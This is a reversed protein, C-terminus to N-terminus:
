EVDSSVLMGRTRNPLNMSGSMLSCGQWTPSILASPTLSSELVGTSVPVVMM